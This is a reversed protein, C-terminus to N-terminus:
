VERNTPLTLHTYSVPSFGPWFFFQRALAKTKSIGSHSFHLKQLLRKRYNSPVFIRQDQYVLLVEDLISIDDWVNKLGRAPHSPPLISPHKDNLIAEIILQYNEDELAADYLEQLAPDDQISNVLVANCFVSEMEEPNFHPARSLADAIFHEKGPSWVVDFTYGLVKERLRQLRNNDIDQIAKNFTGLLPKHDTVM